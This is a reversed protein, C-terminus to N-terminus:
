FLLNLKNLCSVLVDELSIGGVKPGGDQVNVHWEVVHQLYNEAAAIVGRGEHTSIPSFLTM